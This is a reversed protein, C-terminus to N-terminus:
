KNKYVAVAVIRVLDRSKTSNAIVATTPSILHLTFHIDFTDKFRRMQAELYRTRSVSIDPCIYTSLRPDSIRHLLNPPKLNFSAKYNSALFFLFPVVFTIMM